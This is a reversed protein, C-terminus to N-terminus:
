KEQNKLYNIVLTWDPFARHWLTYKSTFEYLQIDQTSHSLQTPLTAESSCLKPHLQSCWSQASIASLNCQSQASIPSLNGKGRRSQSQASIPRPLQRINIVTPNWFNVFPNSPIHILPPFNRLGHHTVSLIISHIKICTVNLMKRTVRVWFIIVWLSYFIWLHIYPSTYSYPFTEWAM